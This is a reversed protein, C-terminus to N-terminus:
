PHIFKQVKNRTSEIDQKFKWEPVSYFDRLQDKISESKVQAILKDREPKQHWYVFYRIAGISLQQELIVYFICRLWREINSFHNPNEARWIRLVSTVLREAKTMLRAEDTYVSIVPNFGVIRKLYSPNFLVIPRAYRMTVIWALLDRYLTFHPDILAFAKGAKILQQAIYQILRSKGNQSLGIGHVHTALEKSTLYVHGGERVNNGIHIHM